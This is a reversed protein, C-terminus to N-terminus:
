RRVAEAAARQVLSPHMHWRRRASTTTDSYCRAAPFVWQWACGRAAGSMKRELAGPLMVAGGGSALDRRQMGEVRKLYRQL